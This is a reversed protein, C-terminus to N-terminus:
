ALAEPDPHRYMLERGWTPNEFERELTAGLREALAISRTNGPLINSTLTKFGLVQYAFRRAKTAAEFAYGKGESGAFMVWGLEPEPWGEPSWIGVMGVTQDEHTDVMWFGYGLLAWHGIASAFWRWTQTRDCPGGFGWSREKDSFFAMLPAFDPKDPARLVLRETKLTPINLSLM